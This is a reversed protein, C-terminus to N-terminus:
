PLKNFIFICNECGVKAIDLEVKRDWKWIEVEEGIGNKWAGIPTNAEIGGDKLFMEATEEGDYLFMM